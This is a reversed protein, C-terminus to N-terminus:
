EAAEDMAHLARLDIYEQADWGMAEAFERRVLDPQGTQLFYTTYLFRKHPDALIEAQTHSGTILDRDAVPLPVRHNNAPDRIIGKLDQGAEMAEIEKLFRQRIMVIGRDSHSLHERTRDAIPGQSAWGLFDQNMVHTTIFTGDENFVPGIWTPIRGQVYPEQEKPVRTYKWCISLMNEDDIPVRWEFHEGLYFGNPWLCVRGITWNVHNEEGERIRKYIFGYDFEEFDLNLHKPGYTGDEGRLRQGWNEHM